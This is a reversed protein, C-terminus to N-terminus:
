GEANVIVERNVAIKELFSRRLEPSQISAAQEQILEYARQLAARAMELDGRALNIKWYARWIDQVPYEGSGMGENLMRKAEHLSRYAKEVDDEALYALGLCALSAVYNGREGLSRRLDTATRFTARAKSAKGQALYLKGIDHLCFAEGRRDGIARRIRLSEEYYEQARNLDGLMYHALGLTNLSTGEGARDGIMRRIRLAHQYTDRAQEYQGLNFYLLGLSNACFAEGGRDNIAPNRYIELAEEYCMRAKEPNFLKTYVLGLYHLCDAEGQQDGLKKMIRRAQEAHRRAQETNGHRWHAVGLNFLFEGERKEDAASRALECAQEGIKVANDYEGLNTQLKMARNQVDLLLVSDGLREALNQMRALDASQVDRRGLRDYVAERRAVLKYEEAFSDPTFPQHGTRDRWMELAKSYYAEAAENGYEAFAKDGALRMYDIAKEPADSLEYHHALQEVVTTVDSTHKTELAVGVARHLERRQSFLLSDYAVEQTIVHRFMYTNTEQMEIKTFEETLLLRLQGELKTEPLTMPHVTQLLDKQFLRGIVSAVRLTLRSDSPLRDLRALVVGEVDDPLVLNNLNGSIEVTSDVFELVGRDKLSKVLEETFFPNGQGREWLLEELTPPIFKIDLNKCALEASAARNLERLELAKAYPLNQLRKYPTAVPEELPRHVLVLMVPEHAIEAGLQAALELSLTDSWHVDDLLILLPRRRAQSLLLAEIIAFTNDRRLEGRLSRTLPTDPIELNVIEGLLPLREMWYGPPRGDDPVRRLIEAVRSVRSTPPQNPNLSCASILVDRWPLYSIQRGYSLCNGGYGVGGQRIFSRAIEAVFCSKGVGAEGSVLLVQGRGDRVADFLGSVEQLVDERGIPEKERLLYNLMFDDHFTRKPTIEYVPIPVAKGKLKMEGLSHVDFQGKTAKHIRSTVLVQGWEAKGMLRASLNMDDGVATYAWRKPSGVRGAFMHGQAVGVRMEVNLSIHSSTVNRSTDIMDHACNIARSIDDEHAVPAGFLIVFLNGKDGIEVENLRGGYRAVVRQMARVYDDLKHVAGPDNAVDIGRFGAFMMTVPRLDALFVTQGSLIQEYLSRPIFPRMAATMKRTNVRSWDVPTPPTKAVDGELEIILSMDDGRPEGRIGLATLSETLPMALVVEWAKAAQEARAMSRITEGAIVDFLGYEPDGVMFRQLEGMGIGVKISLSIPGAPTDVRVFKRMAQQIELACGVATRLCEDESVRAPFISTVADGSFKLVSGGFDTVCDILTKFVRNLNANLIEGGEQSGMTEALMETLTTFGSMDCFLVAGKIQKPLEEGAILSVLRDQPLYAAMMKLNEM